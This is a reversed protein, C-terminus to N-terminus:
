SRAQEGARALLGSIAQRQARRPFGRAVIEDLVLLFVARRLGFSPHGRPHRLTPKPFRDLYEEWGSLTRRQGDDISKWYAFIKAWPPDRQWVNNRVHPLFPNLMDIAHQIAGEVDPGISTTPDRM